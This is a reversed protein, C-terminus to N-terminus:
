ASASCADKQVWAPTFRGAAVPWPGEAVGESDPVEDPRTTALTHSDVRVLRFAFLCGTLLVLTQWTVVGYWLSLTYLREGLPDKNSVIGLVIAALLLFWLFRTRTLMARRALCFGPVILTGFHAKSSMPSLLLMLLLVISSELAQWRGAPDDPLMRFPRGCNWLVGLLLLAECGYVLARLLQPPALPVVPQITCDNDLWTWSTRCWRQGAGALSQNYVADSAWTGVYHDRETLPKLYRAVYEALWPRNTPATSVLDPLLNVGLAVTLLWVAALPRGRWLLYPAWLLATCKCAAALGFLAAALKSRERSLMLCGGILATGILIDTQQHALCNQLYFLGCLMGLLVALHEGAKATRRGELRGGGALRWGWRLMAILCAANVLFWALRGLLAPLALFPLAMVAMFPPYLYGHQDRYLDDGVALRAAAPLYVEDWESQQRRCFCVAMLVLV